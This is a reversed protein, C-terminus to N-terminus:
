AHCASGWSQALWHKTENVRVAISSAGQVQSPRYTTTDTLLLHSQNVVLGKLRHVHQRQVPMFHGAGAGTEGQSIVGVGVINHACGIGDRIFLLGSLYLTWHQSEAQCCYDCDQHHVCVVLQAHTVTFAPAHTCATM